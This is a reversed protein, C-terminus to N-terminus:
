QPSCGVSVKGKLAVSARVQKTVICNLLPLYFRSCTVTTTRKKNIKKYIDSREATKRRDLHGFLPIGHGRSDPSPM